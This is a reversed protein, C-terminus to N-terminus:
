LFFRLLSFNVVPQGDKEASCDTALHGLLGDACSGLRKPSTVKLLKITAQLLVLLFSRDQSWSRNTQAALQRQTM